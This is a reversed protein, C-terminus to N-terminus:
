GSSQRDVCIRPCGPGDNNTDPSGATVIDEDGRGVAEEGFPQYALNQSSYHGLMGIVHKPSARTEGEGAHRSIHKYQHKTTHTGATRHPSGSVSTDQNSVTTEAIKNSRYGTVVCAACCVSTYQIARILSTGKECNPLSPRTWTAAPLSCQM